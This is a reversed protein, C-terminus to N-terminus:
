GCWIGDSIHSAPNLPHNYLYVWTPHTTGGALTVTREARTYDDPSTVSTQGRTIGEYEDLWALTAVPNTLRYLEGHVIDAPREAPRLGPYWSVRHLRGAIQAPGLLSAEARLRGGMPHALTTMLSGYVFLHAPM